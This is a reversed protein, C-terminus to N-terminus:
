SRYLSIFTTVVTSLFLSGGIIQWKFAFLKDLKTDIKDLKRDTREIFYEILEKDTRM